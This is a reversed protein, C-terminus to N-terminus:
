NSAHDRLFPEISAAFTDPDEVLAYHSGGPIVLLQGHPIADAIFRSSEVPIPDVEGHVVLTPCSITALKGPLDHDAFDRFVRPAAEIVNEATIQTFGFDAQLANDRDRFFPGHRLRYYQELTKADRAKYEPSEEIRAIEEADETPRRSGMEKGFSEMLEPVLPPGPNALVLASVREPQTAAYLAVMHAALSHGVLTTREIGLGDLLGDLDSLTGATSVLEPDGLASAGSGREDYYVVERGNALLDFGKRLYAYGFRPGGPMVVVPPGDGLRLYALETDAVSLTGERPVADAM